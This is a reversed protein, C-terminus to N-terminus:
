KKAAANSKPKNPKVFAVKLAHRIAPLDDDGSIPQTAKGYARDLVINLATLQDAERKAMGLAISAGTDLQVIVLGAMHAARKVADPGWQQALARVEQSAKNQTGLQRGGSKPRKAM